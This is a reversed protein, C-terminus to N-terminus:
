KGLEVGIKLDRDIQGSYLLKGSVLVAEPYVQLPNWGEPLSILLSFPTKDGWGAQKQLYYIFSLSSDVRGFGLSYKLEVKRKESIPVTLLFGIEKKDGKTKETLENDKIKEEDVMIWDLKAKRPIYVRVYAKYDGAPWASTRATNEYSVKLTSSFGDSSLDVVQEVSRKLFYNAKNIGVNAENIHLYNVVCDEKKGCSVRELQGSWGLDSLAQKVEGTENIGIMLEGEELAELLAGGLKLRKDPGLLKIEELLMKGLMGLFTAKQSSGPFFKNESYLEAQEYLNDVTIEEEYDPIYVKELVGVIKKAVALDMGIVGDVKKGIEKELFWNIDEVSELFDPEWNSDRLYWGPEGLYKRLEEPPEVHGKLQGDLSYVDKITFDLFRGDEFGLFGVSGIFGGTPRIEMENQLLVLFERRDGGVGLMYSWVEMSKKLLVIKKKENGIKEAIKRPEMRWRGPLWGWDGGLRAQVMSLREELDGLGLEIQVMGGEWDVTKRQFVGESLISGTKMLELGTEGVELIERELVVLDSFRRGWRWNRIEWREMKLELGSVRRENKELLESALIWNKSVVMPEIKKLDSYVLYVEVMMLLPITALWLFAFGLVLVLWKKWKRGKGRRKSSRDNTVLSEAQPLVGSQPDREGGEFVETQSIEVEKEVRKEEQSIEEKGERGTIKKERQPAKEVREEVKKLWGAEGWGKSSRDGSVEKEQPKTKGTVVEVKQYGRRPERQSVEKEEGRGGFSRDNTVLSEAQPIQLAQGSLEGREKRQFFDQLTLRVGKGIGTKVKWSISEERDMELSIVKPLSVKLSYDFDKTTKATDELTKALEGLRVLEGGVELIEGSVNPFFCAGMLAEVLDMVYLFPWKEEKGGSPLEMKENNVAQGFVRGVWDSDSFSMGPGYIMGARVVRWDMNKRKYGSEESGWEQAIVVRAGWKEVWDWIEEGGKLDLVCVPKIKKAWSEMLHNVRRFQKEDELFDWNAGEVEGVGLVNLGKRVLEECVHRALFGSMGYVLAIPNEVGFEEGISSSSFKGESM